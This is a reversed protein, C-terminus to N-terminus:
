SESGRRKESGGGLLRLRQNPLPLRVEACSGKGVESKIRLEGRHERVIRQAIVLGLGTGGQKTTYYPEFLRAVTEQSMGAGNDCFLIVIVGEDFSTKVKLVGGPSMAQMGNRILNYFVQKMQDPDVLIWPLGKGLEKKVQIDRDNLEPLLFELSEQIVENISLSQLQPVSPRIAKLFQKIIGDLRKVESKSVQISEKLRGLETQEGRGLEREMLQLQLYFSNLPNGLEHAMGAAFLTLAHFRESEAAERIARQGETEDEFILVYSLGEGSSLPVGRVKLFRKQPYSVELHLINSMGGGRSQVEQWPLERIFKEMKEGIAGGEGFGLLKAAASNYYQILGKDDIAM